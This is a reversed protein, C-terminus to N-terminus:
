LTRIRLRLRFVCDEEGNDNLGHCMTVCIFLCAAVAVLAQGSRLRSTMSCPALMSAVWLIGAFFVTADHSHVCAHNTSISTLLKSKSTESQFM